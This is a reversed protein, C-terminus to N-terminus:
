LGEVFRTIVAFVEAADTTARDGVFYRPGCLRGDATWVALASEDTLVISIEPLRSDGSRLHLMGRTDTWARSGNRWAAVRLGYRAGRPVGANGFPVLVVTAFETTPQLVIAKGDPALAVHRAPGTSPALLLKGGEVGISAFKHRVSRRVLRNLGDELASLPDGYVESAAQRQLDLVAHRRSAAGAGRLAIRHGDRSLGAITGAAALPNKLVLESRDALNVVTGKVTVAWPGDVGRRDFVELYGANLPAAPVRTIAVSRGDFAVCGWGANDFFYRGHGWSAGHEIPFVERLEGSHLDFVDLKRSYALVLAEQHRFVAAPPYGTAALRAITCRGTALDATVLHLAARSSGALVYALGEDDAAIWHLVGRPLAATLQRAGTDKLVWHMLRGDRTAAVLGGGPVPCARKAEVEHPLLFPFPDVSLIVPQSADRGPALLPVGRLERPPPALIADLSLSAEKLLRRGRRTVAWMRYRGDAGVTAVDLSRDDLRALAAPFEPDHLVDEHTVLIADLPGAIAATRELFKSLAESPISEPQLAELLDLLGARATLDVPDLGADSSRFASISTFRDATAALALSVAAAFVRPVGWMRIGADVLIARRGPLNRPPQERRLYLAENLAIRTALTLEDHALESVLLRDLPGRNSIDSVGGLPLEEPDSVRRPAHVAAMLDAALRAVGALERDERLDAILRRVSEAAVEDPVPAAQPLRDLGTRTRLDLAENTVRGLGLRLVALDQLFRFVLWKSITESERADPQAGDTMAAVIADAEEVSGRGEAGDFVLAAIQAKADAGTRLEIRVSAVRDLADLIERLWAPPFRGDLSGVKELDAIHAQLAARGADKWGPRCAALLLVLAGFPPLGGPALKGLVYAVEERFAITTGDQWVAVRGGDSWMWFAMAPPTLYARALSQPDRM